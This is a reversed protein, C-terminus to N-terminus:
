LKKKKGTAEYNIDLEPVIDIGFEDDDIDIANSEYQAESDDFTKTLQDFMRNMLDPDNNLQETITATRERTLNFEPISNNLTVIEYEKEDIHLTLNPTNPPTKTSNISSNSSVIPTTPPNSKSGFVRFSNIVSDVGKKLFTSNPESKRPLAKPKVAEFQENPIGLGGNSNSSSSSSISSVMSSTEDFDRSTKRRPSDDFTIDENLYDDMSKMKKSFRKFHKMHINHFFDLYSIFLGLNHKIMTINFLFTNVFNNINLGSHQKVRYNELEVEKAVIHEQIGNLLLIITKHVEEITEFNYQKHPELDKYIPFVSNTKIMEFTKNTGITKDVYESVIKFLKYYECYMRNNLAYFYKQMDAYEFDILRSQFKFSDLGFVFTADHNGKIFDNTMLKLKTLKVELISFVTMVQIRTDKIKNFIVKIKQLKAEM